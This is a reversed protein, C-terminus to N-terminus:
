QYIFKRVCMKITKGTQLIASLRHQGNILDDNKDLEIPFTTNVEWKGDNMIRAYKAVKEKDLLRSNRNRLLMQEAENPSIDVITKKFPM